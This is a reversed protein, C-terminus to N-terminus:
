RVIWEAEKARKIEGKKTAETLFIPGRQVAPTRGRGRGDTRLSPPLRPSAPILQNEQTLTVFHPLVNTGM